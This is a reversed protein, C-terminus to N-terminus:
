FEQFFLVKEEARERCVFHLKSAYFQDIYDWFFILVTKLHM